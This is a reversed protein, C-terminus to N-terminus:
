LDKYLRYTAILGIITFFLFPISVILEQNVHNFIVKDSIILFTWLMHGLLYFLFAIFFLKFNKKM